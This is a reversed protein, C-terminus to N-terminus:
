ALYTGASADPRSDVRYSPMGQRTRGPERRDAILSRRVISSRDNDPGPMVLDRSFDVTDLPHPVRGISRAQCDINSCNTAMISVIGAKLIRCLLLM